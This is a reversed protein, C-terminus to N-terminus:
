NSKFYICEVYKNISVLCDWCHCTNLVLSNLNAFCYVVYWWLACKNSLWFKAKCKYYM